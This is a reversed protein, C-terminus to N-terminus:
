FFLQAQGVFQDNDPEDVGSPVEEKKMIYNLSFMAHNGVLRFNVGGTIWSVANDDTDTDPDFNEYRGLLEIQPNVNFGLHAYYGASSLDDIGAGMEDSGMVYAGKLVVSMEENLPYNVVVGGGYRNSALDVDEEAMLMNGMWGYGLIQVFEMPKVAASVLIDKADNDDSWNNAPYGNFVGFNFDIYDTKTTSQIGCQRWMAYGQVTLPYNILDLKATSMPMYHTFAPLFRGITISTMPIYDAFILKTDLVYISSVGETQVFYKIQDTLITGWFLLRSRKLAFSTQIATTDMNYTFTSQMIGGIKLTGYHALIGEDQAFLPFAFIMLCLVALIFGKMLVGGKKLIPHPYIRGVGKYKHHLKSDINLM